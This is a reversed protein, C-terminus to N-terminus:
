LFLGELGKLGESGRNKLYKLKQTKLDKQGEWAGCVMEFFSHSQPPYCRLPPTSDPSATANAKAT